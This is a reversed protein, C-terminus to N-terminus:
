AHIIVYDTMRACFIHLFLVLNEALTLLAPVAHSSPPAVWRAQCGAAFLM